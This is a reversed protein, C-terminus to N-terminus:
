SRNHDAFDKAVPLSNSAALEIIRRLLAALPYRAKSFFDSLLPGVFVQEQTFGYRRAPSVLEKSRDVKAFPVLLRSEEMWSLDEDRVEIGTQSCLKL